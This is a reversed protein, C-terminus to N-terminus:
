LASISDIRIGSFCDDQCGIPYYGCLSIIGNNKTEFYIDNNKPDAKLWITSAMNYVKDLTIAKAGENDHTSLSIGAEHWQKVIAKEPSNPMQTYVAYDRSVVVGNNVVLKTETTVGTFSATTVTYSYNNYVSNKFSLWKDFSQQYTLGTTSTVKISQPNSSSDKSCSAFLIFGAIILCFKTRM